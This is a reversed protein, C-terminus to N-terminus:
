RFLTNLHTYRNKCGPMLRVFFGLFKKKLNANRFVKENFCIGILM